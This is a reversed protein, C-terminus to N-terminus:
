TLALTHHELRTTYRPTKIKIKQMSSEYLQNNSFPLAALTYYNTGMQLPM